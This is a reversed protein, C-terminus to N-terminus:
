AAVNATNAAARILVEAAKTRVDGYAAARAFHREIGKSPKDRDYDTLGQNYRMVWAQGEESAVWAQDANAPAPGAADNAAQTREQEVEAARAVDAETWEMRLDVEAFAIRTLAPLIDVAAGPMEGLDWASSVLAAAIMGDATEDTRAALANRAQRWQRKDVQEGVLAAQHLAAIRDAGAAIEGDDLRSRLQENMAVLWQRVIRLTDAGPEVAAIVEPPTGLQQILQVFAPHLSYTEAFAALAEADGQPLVAQMLQAREMQDLDSAPLRALLEGKLAPDNKFAGTM